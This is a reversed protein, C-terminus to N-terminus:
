GAVPASRQLRLTERRAHRRGVRADLAGVVARVARSNIRLYNSLFSPRMYFQTYARGLLLRLQEATAAPHTFTPTFGDFREWDPETILPEMKTFLPTGPYPTLIKFQAVTSGLAISYEITAVISEPTDELFGFVYFAATVIGLDRCRTLVAHQHAEPIPRRGVKKLTAPSLSEVGFSMARLGARHMTGLLSDDLRDLRTECEFTHRLARQEIGDCIALVRDRDHSFLPDRFVIHLPGRTDQLFQLEDLINEVSRARYKAQIRHPCYTCFEPCSRSALVPLSGGAPRGAFPVRLRPRAALLSDWWPFPLADLDDLAPSGVVGHAAGGAFIRMLASEPEGDIIFDADAEFLHPLKQAALGFFGVRVGRKRMERAWGTERRHDVLSSVVVGVDADVIDGDSAVVEHGAHRALAAAYALHVSPLDHFQRKLGAIVQTVKSFPRLRSGYGGAVTDKSVFGDSGRLDALVIRMTM